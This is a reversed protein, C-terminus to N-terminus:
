GKVAGIMVGKVFYKQIFPYLVLMPVSSVVISSYIIGENTLKDSFIDEQAQSATDKMDVIIKKIVVQLPIKSDDNLLIMPWLYENWKGVAYFLAITALAATSLPLYVHLLIQFQSAGDIECAEELSKPISNFFNRLLIFNYSSVAFPLLVSLRTNVLHLDRINLFIPIMGAGMWMSIVIMLNFFKRGPLKEKSLGYAGCITLVMSILTGVITYFFSNLYSIWITPDTFIYKYASFDLDVPFLIVRGAQIAMGSSFSASIVYVIPYMILCTLLILFINNCVYFIKEGRTEKM